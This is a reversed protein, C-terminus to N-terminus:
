RRRYWFRWVLFAAGCTPIVPQWGPRRRKIGDGAGAPRHASGEDASVHSPSLMSRLRLSSIEIEGHNMSLDSLRIATNRVTSLQAM